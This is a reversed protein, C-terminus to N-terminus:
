ENLEARELISSISALKISDYENSHIIKQIEDLQELAKIASRTAERLDDDIEIAGRLEGLIDSLNLITKEITM